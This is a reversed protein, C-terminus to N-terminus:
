VPHLSTRSVTIASVIAEQVAMIRPAHRTDQHVGM